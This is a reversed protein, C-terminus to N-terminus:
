TDTVARELPFVGVVVGQRAEICHDEVFPLMDGARDSPVLFRVLGGDCECLVLGLLVCRWQGRGADSHIERGACMEETTHLVLVRVDNLM